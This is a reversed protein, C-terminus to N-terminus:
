SLHIARHAAVGRSPSYLYSPSYLSSLSYLYSPSYRPRSCSRRGTPGGLKPNPNPNSDPNPDPDPNPKPKPNPDPNPKSDPDPNAKWNAWWRASSTMDGAFCNIVTPRNAVGRGGALNITNTVRDPMSALRKEGLSRDKMFESIIKRQGFSQQWM